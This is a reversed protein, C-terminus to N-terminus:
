KTTQPINGKTKLKQITAKPKLEIVFTKLYEFKSKNIQAKKSTKKLLSKHNTPKTNQKTNTPKYKFTQELIIQKHNKIQLKHNAKM